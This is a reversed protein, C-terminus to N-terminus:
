KPSGALKLSAQPLYGAARRPRENEQELQRNRCRLLRLEEVQDRTVGDPTGTEIEDTKLWSSLTASSIGFDETTKKVPEPSNRCIKVVDRRFEEPFARIASDKWSCRVTSM